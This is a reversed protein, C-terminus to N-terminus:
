PSKGSGAKQVASIASNLAIQDKQTMIQLFHLSQEWRLGKECAIIMASHTIEDPLLHEELMEDYFYLAFPWKSSALVSLIANYLVVDAHERSLHFLKLARQWECASICSSSLIKDSKKFHHLAQQWQAEESMSIVASRSNSSVRLTRIKKFLSMGSQWKLSKLSSFYIERLASQWAGLDLAHQMMALSTSWIAQQAAQWTCPGRLAKSDLHRLAMQQLLESSFSWSLQALLQVNRFDLKPCNQDALLAQWRCDASIAATLFQANPRLSYSKAESFLEQSQRWHAIKLFASRTILDPELEYARMSLLSALSSSWEKFGSAFSKENYKLGRKRMEWLVQQQKRWSSMAVISNMVITNSRLLSRSMFRLLEVARQWQKRLLKLAKGVNAVDMSLAMQGGYCLLQLAKRWESMAQSLQMATAMRRVRMDELMEM